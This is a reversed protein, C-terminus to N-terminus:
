LMASVHRAIALSSTLAPSDLGILQIYNPHREIIWDRYGAPNAMIGAFDIELDDLRLGPFFLRAKEFFHRVPLRGSEYDERNTVATFQPGVTVIDGIGSSGDDKIAFTPTLHIGIVETLTDGSKIYEPSPYVNLGNMSIERRRSKNFKFYEGRLPALAHACSPDLMKGIKDSYLGAANIVFSAEVREIRGDSRRAEVIFGDSKPEIGVVETKMLITAGNIECLRALAKVYSAADVNGTSPTYLALTAGVNPELRRIEDAGVLMAGEVGNKKAREFIRRINEEDDRGPSVTLKGTRVCPVGHKECFEYMLRNGEVCLRAKLSGYDYYIGAHIVGSNRGSQGEALYSGREFLFVNEKGHSTLELAVACGVAGAGIVAIDIKNM